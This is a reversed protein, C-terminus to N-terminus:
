EFQKSYNLTSKHWNATKLDNNHESGADGSKFSAINPISDFYIEKKAIPFLSMTLHINICLFITYKRFGYIDIVAKKSVTLVALMLSMKEM